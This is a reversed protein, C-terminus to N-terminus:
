EEKESSFSAFLGEKSKSFFIRKSRKKKFFLLSSFLLSSFLLSAKVFLVKIREPYSEQARGASGQGLRHSAGARHRRV